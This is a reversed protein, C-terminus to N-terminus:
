PEAPPWLLITPRESLVLQVTQGGWALEAKASAPRNDLEREGIAWLVAVEGEPTAFRYGKARGETVNLPAEPPGAPECEALLQAMRAYAHAAPTPGDTVNLSFESEGLPVVGAGETFGQYWFLREAGLGLATAVAKPVFDAIQEHTYPGIWDEGTRVSAGIETIWLPKDTAGADALWGKVKRVNDEVWQSQWYSHFNFIDFHQGMGLKLCEPVFEPDYDGGLAFGGTTVLCEPDARKAREYAVRQMDTYVSYHEAGKVGKMFGYNDPENWVEWHGVRGKYRAVVREVYEGWDDMSDPPYMSWGGGGEAHRPDRASAWVVSYGLLGLVDYGAEQALELDRDTRDWQWEGKQPEVMGWAFGLRVSKAGTARCLALQLVKQEESFRELHLNVGFPNGAALAPGMCGAVLCIAIVAGVQQTCM